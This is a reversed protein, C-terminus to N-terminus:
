FTPRSPSVHLWVNLVHKWLEYKQICLQSQFLSQLEHDCQCRYTIIFMQFLFYYNNIFVFCNELKNPTDQYGTWSAVTCHHDSYSFLYMKTGKKLCLAHVRSDLVPPDTHAAFARLNYWNRKRVLYLIDGEQMKNIFSLSTSMFPM